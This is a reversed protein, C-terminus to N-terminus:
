STCKSSPAIQLLSENTGSSRMLYTGRGDSAMAGYEVGVPSGEARITGNTPNACVTPGEGGADILWLINDEVYAETDFTFTGLSSSAIFRPGKFLRMTTSQTKTSQVEMWVGGRVVALPGISFNPYHRRSIVHGTVPSYDALILHDGPSYGFVYLLANDYSPAIFSPAFGLVVKSIIAGSEPNIRLLETSTAVWVKGQIVTVLLTPSPLTIRAVVKLSTPNLKLLLRGHGPTLTTGANGLPAGTAWWLANDGYAVSTISPLRIHAKVTFSKRDVRILDAVPGKGFDFTGVLFISTRDIAVINADPGYSGFSLKRVVSFLASTGKTASSANAPPTDGIPACYTFFIATIALVGVALSRTFHNM